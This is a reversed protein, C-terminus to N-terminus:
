TSRRRLRRDVDRRRLALLDRPARRRPPAGALLPRPLRPRGRDAAPTLGVFVHAGHLGPSASSCRPSHATVRHQLRRARVRDVQTCCSRSASCSRSCWARRSARRDGRKISQTGLADHLEVDRPDRHQRGRRLRPVRVAGAAVRGPARTSSASSSTPPSSRASSCSRRRSSSSCGSRGRISALARISATPGHHDDRQGHRSPQATM